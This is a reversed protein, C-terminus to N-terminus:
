AEKSGDILSHAFDLMKQIQTTDMSEILGSLERKPNDGITLAEAMRKSEADSLSVYHATMELSSHGAQKSIEYANFGEEALRTLSSHRFSHFGKLCHNRGSEDTEQTEIGCKKLLADFQKNIRRRGAVTKYDEAMEPLVFVGREEEPISCLAQKLEDNLFPEVKAKKKNKVRTKVKNQLRHIRGQELDVECWKLTACDGLRLSCYYGLLVAIKLEGQANAKLASVESETFPERSHEEGEEAEARVTDDFPNKCKLVGCAILYRYIASITCRYNNTTKATLKLGDLFAQASVATVKSLHYIGAKKMDAVFRLFYKRVNDAQTMPKIQDDTKIGRLCKLRRVKLGEPPETTLYLTWADKLRERALQLSRERREITQREREEEAARKQNDEEEKLKRAAEERAEAQAAKEEITRRESELGEIQQSATPANLRYMRAALLSEATARDFVPKGDDGLLVERVRRGCSYYDAYFAGGEKRQKVQGIHKRAM